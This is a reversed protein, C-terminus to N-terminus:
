MDTIINLIRKAYGRIFDLNKYSLIEVLNDIEEQIERIFAHSKEEIKKDRTLPAVQVALIFLFSVYSEVINNNATKRGSIPKSKPFLIKTDIDKKQYFEYASSLEKPIGARNANTFKEDLISHMTNWFILKKDYISKVTIEVPKLHLDFVPIESVVCKCSDNIYGFSSDGNDYDSISSNKRFFDIEKTAYPLSFIGNAIKEVYPTPKEELPNIGTYEIAKKLSDKNSYLNPSIYMYVSGFMGNHLSLLFDFSNNDILKRVATNEPLQKNFSYGKYSLPFSWEVQNNTGPRYWNYILSEFNLESQWWRENIKSGDIDWVPIIFWDQSGKFNDLNDLLVKIFLQSLPENPHPYGLILGKRRMNKIQFLLIQNGYESLGIVSKVYEIRNKELSSEIDKLYNDISKFM